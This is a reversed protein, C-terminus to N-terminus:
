EPKDAERADEGHMVVPIFQAAVRGRKHRLYLYGIVCFVIAGLLNVFLDAMTDRLGVDLYGSFEVRGGGETLIVTREIGDIQTVRAGTANPLSVTHVSTLFADKQMDTGLVTDVSYEFLEWLVGTTMSFCFALFAILFPALSPVRRRRRECLAVLCFGVAAFMYGNFAHLIDDFLAFREYFGGIEGLVGACFVFVYALVELTTPLRIRFNREVFAPILLLLLTLTGTFVRGWAGQLASLLLISLITMAFLCFVAFATKDRRIECFVSTRAEKGRSKRRFLM